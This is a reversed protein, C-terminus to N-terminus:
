GYSMSSNEKKEGEGGTRNREEHEEEEYLSTSYRMASVFAVARQQANMLLGEGYQVSADRRDCLFVLASAPLPGDNQGHGVNIIRYQHRICAVPVYYVYM